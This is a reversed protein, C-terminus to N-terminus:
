IKEGKNLIQLAKLDYFSNDFFTKIFYSPGKDCKPCQSENHIEDCNSCWRADELKM